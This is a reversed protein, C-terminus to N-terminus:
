KHSSPLTGADCLPYCLGADNSRGSPCSLPGGVGRGYSDKTRVEGGNCVCGDTRTGEPCRVCGKAMTVGCKDYWPCGGNDGWNLSPQCLAGM